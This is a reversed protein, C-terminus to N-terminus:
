LAIGIEEQSEGGRRVGLLLPIARLRVLAVQAVDALCEVAQGILGFALVRQGYLLYQV